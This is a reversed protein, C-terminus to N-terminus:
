LGGDRDAPGRDLEGPLFQDAVLIEPDAILDLDVDLFDARSLRPFALGGAAGLDLGGAGGFPEQFPKELLFDVLDVVPGDDDFADGPPGPDPAFDGDGGVVLVDIGGPGADPLASRPDLLDDGLKAVPLVFLLDVDDIVGVVRAHEDDFRDPRGM